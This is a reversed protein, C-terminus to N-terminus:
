YLLGRANTEQCSLFSIHLQHSKSPCSTCDSLLEPVQPGGDDQGGRKWLLGQHEGLFSPGTECMHNQLHSLCFLPLPLPHIFTQACIDLASQSEVSM